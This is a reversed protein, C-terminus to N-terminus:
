PAVSNEVRTPEIASQSPRKAGSTAASASPPESAAFFVTGADAPVNRVSPAVNATRSTPTTIRVAPRIIKGASVSPGITSASEQHSQEATGDDGHDDQREDEPEGVRQTKM